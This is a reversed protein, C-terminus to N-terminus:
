QAMLILHVTAPVVKIDGDNNIVEINGGSADVYTRGGQQAGCKRREKMILKAVDGTEANVLTVGFTGHAMSCGVTDNTNLMPKDRRDSVKDIDHMAM